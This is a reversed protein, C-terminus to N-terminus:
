EARLAQMPDVRAARRAPLWCAVLSVSLLLGSVIGLAAVDTPSVGMFIASLLKALAVALALGIVLGYTTLRMGERVFLGVVQRQVAGLAVRVGIERTRQAVSFAIVAYVGVTALLLAIAGFISLMGSGLRDESLRDWRYQALTQVGTIPMSADMTKFIERLPAALPAADGRVRVLLTLDSAGPNQSQAFYLTSRARENPGALMADRAVGVVTVVQGDEQGVTLRQGIPNSKGWAARAFQDSVIAVRQAGPVDNANFDRGGLLQLDLTAFYGPTVTHLYTEIDRREEFRAGGDARAHEIFPLTIINREGLPVVNTFAVREVGPLSRAREGLARVFADARQPTYGQMGLDFSMALVRRSADFGVNVQTAERLSSLFLGATCLLVLSLAVQAVVFGSQLRSRRTDRGVAASKLAHAVDGRTAHFAPVLGFLLTTVAAAALTFLLVRQDPSTGLPVPIQASVLETAWVAILTGLATAALALVASETLLQRVIRQRSAGISLRVAIERRRGVAQSLLVNSVNACAILLVLVTVITALTAVPVIDNMDNPRLGSRMERVRATIGAHSATDAQAIRAAITAVGANAAAISVDARLRGISELWWTGRSTLAGTNLPWARNVMSMPVWLALPESHSPGNFREEAVGVVTFPSGNVVIQTGLIASDGGFREQWFRHALVTVPHADLTSDEQPLFGRGLAMRTGLVNFFNASVIQGLVQEPEGQARVALRLRSFAAVDEFVTRLGRYDQFDPYALSRQGGGGAASVPTVWVLRESQRLGPMPRTFIADAMTFLATNAGIGIALTGVVLAAIAPNKAIQRVAYHLDKFLTEM